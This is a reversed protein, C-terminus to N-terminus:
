IHLRFFDVVRAVWEAGKKGKYQQQYFDYFLYYIMIIIFYFGAVLFNSYGCRVIFIHITGQIIIITFQVMQLITLSRKLFELSKIINTPLIASSLYYSYMLIHIAANLASSFHMESGAFIIKKNLIYPVFFLRRYHWHAAVYTMVLTAAHHFVHLFSVQNEKKRLVFVMTESLDVVRGWYIVSMMFYEDPDNSETNNFCRWLKWMDPKRDYLMRVVFSCYFIQWINYCVIFKKLTFPKRNRMFMPLVQFVMLYYM